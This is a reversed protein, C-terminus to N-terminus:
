RRAWCSSARTPRACSGPRTAPSRSTSARPELDGVQQPQDGPRGPLARGYPLFRTPSSTSRPAGARASRAGARPEAAARLRARRRAGALARALEEEDDHDSRGPISASRAGAARRARRVGRAAGRPRGALPAARRRRRALRVPARNRARAALERYRRRSARRRRRRAGRWAGRRPGAADALASACSARAPRRAPAAPGLARDWVVADRAAAGAPAPPIHAHAGRPVLWRASGHARAACRSSAATGPRPLAPPRARYLARPSRRRRRRRLLGALCCSAPGRRPRAAAPLPRAHARRAVLRRATGRCRNLDVLALEAIEDPARRPAVLVNGVSFDRHWFGADHLRRALRASRRRAPARADVGPFESAARTGANRARLLYRAEVGDTSAAASTSRAARAPAASEVCCCRSRPRSAPRARARQATARLEAAAKSGRCGAGCARATLATARPVAQGGSSRRRRARRSRARYLYNRGWHLTELARAPISCAARAGGDLDARGALAAAAEGASATSPSRARATVGRPHRLARPAARPRGAAPRRRWRRARARRPDAREEGSCRARSRPTSGCCCSARASRPARLACCRAGCTSASRPSRASAAAAARLVPLAPHAPARPQRPQAQPHDRGPRVGLDILVKNKRATRRAARRELAAFVQERHEQEIMDILDIVIIGGLDRLRIQRVIEECRRSTPARAGHGRPQQQGVFRGTNVDIAVLAETPNIVM